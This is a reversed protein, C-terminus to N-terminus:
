DNGHEGISHGVTLNEPLMWVQFGLALGLDRLWAQIESHTRDADQARSTAIRGPLYACPQDPMVTLRVKVPPAHSPYPCSPHAADM